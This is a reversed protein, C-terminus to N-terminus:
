RQVKLTLSAKFTLIWNVVTKAVNFIAETSFSIGYTFLTFREESDISKIAIRVM